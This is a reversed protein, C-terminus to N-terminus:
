VLDGGPAACRKFLELLESAVREFRYREEALHRGRRGMRARLDRDGLLRSIAEAFAAPDDHPSVLLGNGGPEIVEANGGRDTTVIPLGAAMAEYHVRALPEEWQSANVFLDGALFLEATRRGPPVFGTLHVGGAAQAMQIVKRSYDDLDDSGYWRSGVVLLRSGPHSRRILPLAELVVHNGKTPSFRSVHLIVPRGLLGLRRRVRQRAARAAWAPRFLETDVGSRITRLKREFGPCYDAIVRAIYDSIAVVASVREFVWRAGEVPFRGGTFVDNHMSLILRAAGAARALLPVFGPRNFIEVLDFRETALFAAVAEAYERPRAGAPVRVYRVGGREERDPLLHDRRCVVTVQHVRALYPLVGDIYTQIAGGHVPPVPLMETCVLCIRM